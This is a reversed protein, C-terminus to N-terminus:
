SHFRDPSVLQPIEKCFNRESSQQIAHAGHEVDPGSWIGFPRSSCRDSLQVWQDYFQVVLQVLPVCAQWLCHLERQVSDRQLIRHLSNQSQAVKSAPRDDKPWIDKKNQLVFTKCHIRTYLIIAVFAQLSTNALELVDGRMM